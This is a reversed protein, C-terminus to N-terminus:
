ADDDNADDDHGDDVVDDAANHFIKKNKRQRILRPVKFQAKKRVAHPM